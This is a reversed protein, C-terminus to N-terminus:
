GMSWYKRAHEKAQSDSANEMYMLNFEFGPPLHNYSGYNQVLYGRTVVDAYSNAGAYEGNRDYCKLRGDASSIEVFKKDQMGYIQIGSGLYNDGIDSAHIEVPGAGPHRIVVRGHIEGGFDTIINSQKGSLQVRSITVKQNVRIVLPGNVIAHHNEFGIGVFDIGEVDNYETIKTVPGFISYRNSSHGNEHVKIYDGVEVSSWPVANGDLDLKTNLLEPVWVTGNVGLYTEGKGDRQFLYIDKARKCNSTLTEIHEHEFKGANEIPNFQMDLAGSMEDGTKRVFDTIDAGEAISFLKLRALGSAEEKHQVPTVGITYM